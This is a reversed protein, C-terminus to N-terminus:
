FNMVIEKFRNGREEFNKFCDFSACAPALLVIDGSNALSNAKDVAYDFSEAVYLDVSESEPINKKYEDFTQKIKNRVAGYLIVSKARDVAVPVIPDFDIKKDYGGLIVIVKKNEGISDEFSELSVITQTPSSAASNNYYLIGNLERVYELRHEVGRFTAAVKKISEVSVIDCLIGIAAMFNEINYEGHIVIENKELIKREIGNRRVFIADEHCYVCNIFSDSLKNGSFYFVTSKAQEGFSKTIENDYNLVIRDSPGQNAFIIKKANAYEEIDKHWDLHNPTINTIVALNPAFIGNNLDFLQFSSLEAVVFDDEKINEVESILPYGINGGVFVTRGDAKLIEGIMTTTTTKGESGTVSIKKARCLMFFLEIESTIIGGNNEAQTFEPSDRRIVPTKFIIDETLNDLYNDGFIFEINYKKAFEALEHRPNDIFIDKKDRATIKKAGCNCLFKILSINSIGLGAVSVTKDKIYERFEGASKIKRYSESRQNVLSNNIM